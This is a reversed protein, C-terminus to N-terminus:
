ITTLTVLVASVSAVAFTITVLATAIDDYFTHMVPESTAPVSRTPELGTLVTEFFPRDAVLSCPAPTWHSVDSRRGAVSLEWRSM